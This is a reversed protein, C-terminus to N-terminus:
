HLFFSTKILGSSSTIILCIIWNKSEWICLMNPKTVLKNKYEEGLIILIIL